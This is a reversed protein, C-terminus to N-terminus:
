QATTFSEIAAASQDFGIGIQKAAFAYSKLSNVTAGTRQSLYYLGEFERAVKEVSLAIATATAVTVSGLGAVEKASTAVAKNFKKYSADDVKFGLRILYEKLVDSM